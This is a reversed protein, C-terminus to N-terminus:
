AQSRRKVFARIGIIGGVAIGGFFAGLAGGVASFINLKGIALVVDPGQGRDYEGTIIYTGPEQVNLKLVSMGVRSGIQYETSTSPRSIEVQGSGAKPRVIVSMGQIGVLSSYVKGNVESRYEHFITYGGGEELVIEHEGPM